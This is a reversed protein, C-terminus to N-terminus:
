VHTIMLSYGDPDVVRFEGNPRYHPYSIGWPNLGKERVDAHMAAVDDVYLYFLIAQQGPDIPEGALALMFRSAGTEMLAWIPEREGEPVLDNIVRFGLLRYFEISRAVSAVHVFPVVSKVADM